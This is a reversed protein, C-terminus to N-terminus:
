CLSPSRDVTLQAKSAVISPHLFEGHHQTVFAAYAAYAEEATDYGGLYHTKGNIKATSEWKGNRKHWSVGKYGSTNNCNMGANQRNEVSTSNRLNSIRNDGSNNNVHDIQDTPWEGYTVLWALRHAYYKVGDLRIQIHGSDTATGAVGGFRCGPRRVAWTFLGTDPNYDLLEKVRPLFTEVPPNKSICM